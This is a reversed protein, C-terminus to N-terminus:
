GTHTVAPKLGTMVRHPEGPQTDTM